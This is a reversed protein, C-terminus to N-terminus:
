FEHTILSASATNTDGVPLSEFAPVIAAGTAVSLL